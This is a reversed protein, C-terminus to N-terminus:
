GKIVLKNENLLDIIKNCFQTSLLDNVESGKTNLNDIQKVEIGEILQSIPSHFSYKGLEYYLFLEEDMKELREILKYAVHEMSEKDFFEGERIIDEDKIQYYEEEYEAISDRVIKERVLRHICLPNCHRLISEKLKYYKFEEEETKDFYESTYRYQKYERKKDRWNKARKNISYTVEGLVKITIFGEKIMKNYEKPTKM